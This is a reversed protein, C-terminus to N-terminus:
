IDSINGQRYFYIFIISIQTFSKFNLAFLKNKSVQEFSQRELHWIALYNVAEVNTPNHKVVGEYCIRLQESNEAAM